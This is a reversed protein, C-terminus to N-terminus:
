DDRESGNNIAVGDDGAGDDEKDAFEVNAPAFMDFLGIASAVVGVATGPVLEPLPDREVLRTDKSLRTGRFIGEEEWLEPLSGAAGPVVDALGRAGVFANFGTEAIPPGVTVIAGVAAAFTTVVLVLGFRPTGATVNGALRRASGLGGGNPTLRAPTGKGWLMGSGVTRFMIASSTRERAQLNTIRLKRDVQEM